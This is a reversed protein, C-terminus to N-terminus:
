PIFKAIYGPVTPENMTFTEEKSPTFDFGRPSPPPCSLINAHALLREHHPM